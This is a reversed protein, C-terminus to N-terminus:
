VSEYLILLSGPAEKIRIDLGDSLAKGNIELTRKKLNEDSITLIYQKELKMWNLRVLSYEPAEERRFVLVAGRDEEQLHLAYAIIGTRDECPPTLAIFDGNWYERLQLADKLAADADKPIFSGLHRDETCLFEPASVARISTAEKEPDIFGALFGFDCSIGTTVTSRLFYPSYDFAGGIHYPLYRSLCLVENQMALPSPRCGMDSRWLPIARMLTEMDLLRGGSACDDIQLGPFRERLEDWLRYMGEVFRIQAIGVRDPTEISRLYEYPDINFDQRYIDVGSEDIVRSIREFQYQWVENDGLNVLYNGQGPLPILKTPDAGFRAFLETGEMARVPEFWLIFRMGHRHALDGLPRLGNPFGEAYRINGLGTRFAGDFWCADLWFANIYSCKAANLIIKRQAEETEFWNVEGDKPINGWYYRDFCTAAVPFVTDRDFVPVPSYYRRHLRVFKQRITDAGGSGFYLLVRVSRVKERPRLVFDCDQFGAALHVFRGTRDITLKWQGSWGIGCVLGNGTEDELDFYPFATTNSSRAGTPMRTVSDGDRIEIREPFFSKVSCDDGRLTNLETDGVVPLKLDMGFLDSVRPSIEDKINELTVIWSWLGDIRHEPDLCIQLGEIEQIGPAIPFYRGGICVSALYLPLQM